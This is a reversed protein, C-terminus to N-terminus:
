AVGGCGNCTFGVPPNGYCVGCVVPPQYEELAFGLAAAIIFAEGLTVSRVCKEINSIAIQRHMPHPLRDALAQQSMGASEREFKVRAAFKRDIDTLRDKTGSM